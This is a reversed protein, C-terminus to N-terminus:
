GKPPDMKHGCRDCNAPVSVPFLKKCDPNKCVPCGARILAEVREQGVELIRKDGIGKLADVVAQLEEPAWVGDIPVPKRGVEMYTMGPKALERGAVISKVHPAALRVLGCVVMGAALFLM